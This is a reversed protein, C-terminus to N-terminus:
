PSSSQVQFCRSVVGVGAEQAELWGARGLGPARRAGNNRKYYQKSQAPVKVRARIGIDLLFGPGRGQLHRHTAPLWVSPPKGRALSGRAWPTVTLTFPSLDLRSRKQPHCGVELERKAEGLLLSTFKPSAEALRLAERQARLSTLKDDM